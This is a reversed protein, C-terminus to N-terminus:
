KKRYAARAAVAADFMDAPVIEGRMSTTLKDVAASLDAADKQSMSVVTMGRKTMETVANADQAPMDVSTTKEFTQAAATVKAQDEPSISNWAKTTVVLAGLFPGFKVDLMNKATDYFHLLLAVYAPSPTADIM